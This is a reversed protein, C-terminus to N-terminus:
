VRNTGVSFFMGDAHLVAAQDALRSAAPQMLVPDLTSHNAVSPRMPLGASFVSFVRGTYPEGM